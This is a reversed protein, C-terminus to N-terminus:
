VFLVLGFDGEFCEWFRFVEGESMLAEGSEGDVGSLFWLRDVAADINGNM